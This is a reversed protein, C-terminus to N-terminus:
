ELGLEKKLQEWPISKGPEALAKRADEVDERDELEEIAKLDEIPVVAAVKRGKNTVVIREKDRAARRILDPFQSQAKAASISSM